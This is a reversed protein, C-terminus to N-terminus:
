VAALLLLLASAIRYFNFLQLSRWYADPVPHPKPGGPVDTMVAKADSDM